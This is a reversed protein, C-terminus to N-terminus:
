GFELYKHQSTAGPKSPLLVYDICKAESTSAAVAVSLVSNSISASTASCVKKPRYAKCLIQKHKKVGATSQSGCKMVKEKVPELRDGDLDM